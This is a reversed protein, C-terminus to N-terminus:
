KKVDMKAIIVPSISVLMMFGPTPTSNEPIPPSKSGADNFLGSERAPINIRIIGKFGIM